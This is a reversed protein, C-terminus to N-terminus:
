GEKLTLLYAVIKDIEADTLHRHKGFRWMVTFRNNVAPDWIQARMQKASLRNAVNLLSPGINGWYEADPLRHCGICNTKSDDFALERGERQVPTLAEQQRPLGADVLKKDNQQILTPEAAQGPLGVILLFSTIIIIGITETALRNKM